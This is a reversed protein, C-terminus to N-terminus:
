VVPSTNIKQGLKPTEQAQPNNPPIPPSADIVPPPPPINPENGPNHLVRGDVGIATSNKIEDPNVM